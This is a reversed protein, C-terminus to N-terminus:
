VVSYVLFGGFLIAIIGVLRKLPSRIGLAWNILSVFKTRGMVGLVFAAIISLWGLVQLVVPFRSQSAGIILVVGLFIRVVVAFVHLGPSNTQKAFLNFIVDPKTLMLVGGLAIAAGFLLIIANM